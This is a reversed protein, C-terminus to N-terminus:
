EWIKYEIFLCSKLNLRFMRLCLEIMAKIDEVDSDNQVNGNRLIRCHLLGCILNSVAYLLLQVPQSKTCEDKHTIINSIFFNNQKIYESVINEYENYDSTSLVTDILESTKAITEKLTKEDCISEM